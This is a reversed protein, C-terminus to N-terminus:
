RFPPIFWIHTRFIRYIQLLIYVCPVEVRIIANVCKFEKGKECSNRERERVKVYVTSIGNPVLYTGKRV